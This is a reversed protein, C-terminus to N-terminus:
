LRALKDADVESGVSAIQHNACVHLKIVLEEFERLSEPSFNRRDTKGGIPYMVRLVRTRYTLLGDPLSSDMKERIPLTDAVIPRSIPGANESVLKSEPGLSVPSM